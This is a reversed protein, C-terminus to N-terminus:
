AKLLRKDGIPGSLKQGILNKLFADLEERLSIVMADVAGTSKDIESMGHVILDVSEHVHRINLNTDQACRVTEEMAASITEVTDIQNSIDQSIATADKHTSAVTTSMAETAQVVQASAAQVSNIQQSIDDTAKSVQNALSKVEQAVVAFGRGAEGARAAEITANLALLNTHGSIKRILHVISEIERSTDALSSVLKMSTSSDVSAKALTTAANGIGKHASDMVATLNRVLLNASQISANSQTAAAGVDASRQLLAESEKTANKSQLRLHSSYDAIQRVTAIVKTEFQRGHEDLNNQEQQKRMATMGAIIFEIELVRIMEVVDLVRKRKQPESKLIHEIYERMVRTSMINATVTMSDPVGYNFYTRGILLSTETWAQDITSTFNKIMCQKTASLFKERGQGYSSERLPGHAMLVDWGANLSDDVCEQLCEWAEPMNRRIQGDPDLALVRMDIDATDRNHQLASIPVKDPRSSM